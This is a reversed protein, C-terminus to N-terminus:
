VLVLLRSFFVELGSVTEFSSMVSLKKYKDVFFVTQDDSVLCFHVCQYISGNAYCPESPGLLLQSGGKGEAGSGRGGMERGTERRNGLGARGRGCLPGWIWSSPRASRQLSGWRPRPRPRLLRLRIQHMKANFDTM